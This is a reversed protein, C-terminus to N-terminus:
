FCCRVCFWGKVRVDLQTALEDVETLTEAAVQNQGEHVTPKRM